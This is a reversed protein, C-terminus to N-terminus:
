EGRYPRCAELMASYVLTHMDNHWRAPNAQLFKDIIAVLQADTMGTVCRELWEIRAKPAGYVPALFSGDMLGMLYVRKEDGSFDRYENGDIFGSKILM